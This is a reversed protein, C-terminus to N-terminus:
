VNHTKFEEGAAERVKQVDDVMAPGITGRESEKGFTERCERELQQRLKRQHGQSPNVSEIGAGEGIVGVHIARQKGDLRVFKIDKGCVRCKM